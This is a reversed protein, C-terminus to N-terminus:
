EGFAGGDGLRNSLVALDSCHLLLGHYCHVSRCLKLPAVHSRGTRVRSTLVAAHPDGPLLGRPWPMGGETTSVEAPLTSPM